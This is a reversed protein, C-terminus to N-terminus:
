RRNIWSCDNFFGLLKLHNAAWLIQHRSFNLNSKSSTFINIRKHSLFPTKKLKWQFFSFIFNQNRPQQLVIEFVEKFFFKLLFYTRYLLLRLDFDFNENTKTEESKWLWSLRKEENNYSSFPSLSFFLFLWWFNWCNNEM